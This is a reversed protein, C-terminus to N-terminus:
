KMTMLFLSINFNLLAVTISVGMVLLGCPRQQSNTFQFLLYSFFFLTM